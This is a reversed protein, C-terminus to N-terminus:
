GVKQSVAKSMSSIKMAGDTLEGTFVQQQSTGTSIQLMTGPDRADGQGISVGGLNYSDDVMGDSIDFMLDCLQDYEENLRGSVADIARSDQAM